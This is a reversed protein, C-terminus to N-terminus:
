TGRLSPARVAVIRVDHAQADSTFDDCSVAIQNSAKTANQAGELAIVPNAPNGGDVPVIGVVVQERQGNVNLACRVATNAQGGPTIQDAWLSASIAYKGRPVNLSAVNAGIDSIPIAPNVGSVGTQTAFIGENNRYTKTRLFHPGAVVAGATVLAAM